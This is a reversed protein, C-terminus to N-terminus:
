GLDGNSGVWVVVVVVLVAWLPCVVVGVVLSIPRGGAEVLWM